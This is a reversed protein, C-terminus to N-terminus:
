FCFLLWASVWGGLFFGFLGFGVFVGTSIRQPCQCPKTRWTSSEWSFGATPLCRAIASFFNILIWSYLNILAQDQQGQEPEGVWSHPPTSSPTRGTLGIIAPLYCDDANTSSNSTLGLWVTSHQLTKESSLCCSELDLLFGAKVRQTMFLWVAKEAGSTKCYRQLPKPDWPQFSTSCIPLFSIYPSCLSYFSM